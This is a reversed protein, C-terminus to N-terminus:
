PLLFLASNGSIKRFRSALHAPSLPTRDIHRIPGASVFLVKGHPDTVKASEVSPAEGMMRVSIGIM